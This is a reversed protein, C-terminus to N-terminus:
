KGRVPTLHFSFKVEVKNALTGTDSWQGTGIAYDLRNITFTGTLQWNGGDPNLTIPLSVPHSIGKIELMGSLRYHHPGLQKLGSSSFHILPHNHSDFFTVDQAESTADPLGADISSAQVVMRISARSPDSPTWMIDAQYRKFQGEIPSGMAKYQFGLRSQAHDIMWNGANAIGPMLALTFLLSRISGIM